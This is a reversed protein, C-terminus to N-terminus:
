HFILVMKSSDKVIAKRSLLSLALGLPLIVSKQFFYQFRRHLTGATTIKIVLYAIYAQLSLTFVLLSGVHIFEWKSSTRLESLDLGLYLNSAGEPNVFAVGFTFIMAGAKILLGIFIAWFLFKMIGLIQQTKM